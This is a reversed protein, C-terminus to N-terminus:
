LKHVFIYTQFNLWTFAPIIGKMKKKPPSMASDPTTSSPGSHFSSDLDDDDDDSNIEDPHLIQRYGTDSSTGRSSTTSTSPSQQHQERTDVGGTTPGWFSGASSPSTLSPLPGPLNLQLHTQQPPQSHPGLPLPPPPGQQLMTATGPPYPTPPPHQQHLANWSYEPPAQQQHHGPPGQAVGGQPRLGGTGDGGLRLFHETQRHGSPSSTTSSVSQDYM